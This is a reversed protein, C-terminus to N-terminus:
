KNYIFDFYFQSWIKAGDCTWTKTGSKSTRAKPIHIIQSFRREDTHISVNLKFLTSIEDTIHNNIVVFIFIIKQM